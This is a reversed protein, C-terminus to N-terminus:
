KLRPDLADRLGDGFLTFAFSTFMIMLGPFLVMHPSTTLFEKGANLIAGWEATPPTIGLGIYSLMSIIMINGAMTGIIFIIITGVANPIMHRVLLRGDGAGLARTSEIYEADKVTFLAGRCMRACLPMTSIAIALVMKGIGNGLVAIIAIAMLISPIAQFIDMIRMIIQDVKGGCYGSIFGLTGGLALSAFSCLVAIPFSIRTAYICRSFLDRGYNDTGFLHAACPDLSLANYDQKFPDYPAILPAFIVLLVLVLIMAMGVVATKNRKLRIWAEQAPSLSRPKGGQRKASVSESEAFRTVRAM